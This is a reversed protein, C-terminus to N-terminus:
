KQQAIPCLNTAAERAGDERLRIGQDHVAACHCVEVLAQGVDLQDVCTLGSPCAPKSSMAEADEDTCM